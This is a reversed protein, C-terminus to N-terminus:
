IFAKATHIYTTHKTEHVAKKVNPVSMRQHEWLIYYIYTYMYVISARRKFWVAYACHLHLSETLIEQFVYKYVSSFSNYCDNMKDTRLIAKWEIPIRIRLNIYCHTQKSCMHVTYAMWSISLTDDNSWYAFVLVITVNM